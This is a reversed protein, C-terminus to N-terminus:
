VNKYIGNLYTDNYIDDSYGIKTDIYNVKEIAVQKSEEDMWDTENLM